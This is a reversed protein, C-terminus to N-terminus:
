DHCQEREHDDLALAAMSRYHDATKRRTTKFLIFAFTVAFIVVALSPYLAFDGQSIVNKLM